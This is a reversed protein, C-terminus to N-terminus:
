SCFKRVTIGHIFVTDIDHSALTLNENLTNIDVFSEPDLPTDTNLKGKGDFKYTEVM